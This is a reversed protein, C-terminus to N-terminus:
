FSLGILCDIGNGGVGLGDGCAICRCLARLGLCESARLDGAGAAAAAWHGLVWPDAMGRHCLFIHM